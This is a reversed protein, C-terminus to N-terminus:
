FLEMETSKQKKCNRTQGRWFGEPCPENIDLTINIIGNTYRRKNRNADGIMKRYKPNKMLEKLRSSLEKKREESCPLQGPAFGEPCEECLTQTTGNNFWHLNKENILM